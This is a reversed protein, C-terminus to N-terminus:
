DQPTTTEGVHAGATVTNSNDKDKSKAENGEKGNKDGKKNCPNNVTKINYQFLLFRVMSEITGPYASENGQAYAFCLDKKAIKNRSNMLFLIPKTQIDAKEEWILQDAPTMGCYDVWTLSPTEVKILQEM